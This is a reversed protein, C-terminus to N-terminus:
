KNIAGAFNPIKEVESLKEYEEALLEKTHKDCLGKYMFYTKELTDCKKCKEM